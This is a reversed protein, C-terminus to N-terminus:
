INLYLNNENAKKLLFDESPEKYVFVIRINLTKSVKHWVKTLNNFCRNHMYFEFDNLCFWYWPSDFFAYTILGEQLSEIKRIISMLFKDINKQRLETMPKKM